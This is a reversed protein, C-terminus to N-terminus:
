PKAPPTAAPKAESKGPAAKADPAAPPDVPGGNRMTAAGSVKIAFNASGDPATATFKTELWHKFVPYFAGETLAAETAGTGTIGTLKGGGGLDQDAGSVKTSGKISWVKGKKSALTYDTVQSVDIRDALRGGVTVQWKAGPAIPETPLVPWPPMSLRVADLLSAASPDKTPDLHLTMEGGVGNAAVTGTIKLTSLVKLAEKVKEVPEKAGQVERADTGALTVAYEIKGDQDVAKAEFDALLVLTPTVNTDAAGTGLSQTASLDLALEVAHKDGPKATYRVPARKGKGPSVLKVTVQPAAITLEIPAAPVEAPKDDAAPPTAAEEPKPEPLPSVPPAAKSGCAALFLVLVSLRTM